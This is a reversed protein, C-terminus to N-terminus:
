RNCAETGFPSHSVANTGGYGFSNVSARRLGEVPWSSLETPVKIKWESFLIRPNPKEFLLNKPIVGAEVAFLAKLFGALGACGELHGINPKVSGVLLPQDADRDVGFTKGIAGLELPDGTPTGTGHAEFYGTRSYDLGASDYVSRILDAQSQSNPVTIGPTHGDQNVGSGRIIGRITDGNKLAEALPKLIVTAMGEGRAYGNARHDFSHSRGDKSLFNLAAMSVMIDPSMDLGSGGAIAMKSEGTRLAQCALHLAVLSSSCATDLTLSAGRLDYFWSIRNSLMATGTGTSRYSSMNEVDTASFQEFDKTFNGVFCATDTGVLSEMTIGANELGEYAVELMLRQQPDMGAAEKATISFFPADFLSLDEKIFHM